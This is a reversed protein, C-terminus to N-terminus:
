RTHARMSTDAAASLAATPQQERHLQEPAVARRDEISVKIHKPILHARSTESESM